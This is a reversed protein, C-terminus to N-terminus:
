QTGYLLEEMEVMPMEGVLVMDELFVEQQCLEIVMRILVLKLKM